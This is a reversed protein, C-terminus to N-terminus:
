EKDAHHCTFVFCPSKTTPPSAPPTSPPTSPPPPKITRKILYLLIETCQSIKVIVLLPYTFISFKHKVEFMIKSLYLTNIELVRLIGL